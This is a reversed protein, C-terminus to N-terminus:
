EKCMGVTACDKQSTRLKPPNSFALAHFRRLVEPRNQEADEKLWDLKTSSFLIFSNEHVHVYMIDRTRIVLFQKNLSTVLSISTTLVLSSLLAALL